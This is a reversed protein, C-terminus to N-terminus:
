CDCRILDRVVLRYALGQGRGPAMQFRLQDDNQVVAEGLARDPNAVGGPVMATLPLVVLDPAVGDVEVELHLGILGAGVNTANVNVQVRPISVCLLLVPTPAVVATGGRPPPPPLPVFCLGGMSHRVDFRGATLWTSQNDGSGIWPPAYFSSVSNQSRQGSVYVSWVLGSGIGPVQAWM